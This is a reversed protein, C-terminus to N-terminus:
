LAVERGTAPMTDWDTDLALPADGQMALVQELTYSRRAAPAVILRGQEADLSVTDGAHLGLARALKQPITLAISGGVTRLTSTHM